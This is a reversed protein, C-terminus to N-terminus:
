NVWPNGLESRTKSGDTDDYLRSRDDIRTYGSFRHLTRILNNLCASCMPSISVESSPTIRETLKTHLRLTGRARGLREQLPDFFIPLKWCNIRNDVKVICDANM